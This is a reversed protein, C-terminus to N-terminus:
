YVTAQLGTPPSPSTTTGAKYEYAGIDPQSDRTYGDFDNSVGTGTPGAGIAPSGSQLHYDRGSENVFEPLQNIIDSSWGLVTGTDCFILNDNENVIQAGSELNIGQCGPLGGHSAHAIINGQINAAQAGDHFNIQGTVCTNFRITVNGAHGFVTCNANYSGVPDLGFINNTVTWNYFYRYSGYTSSSTDSQIVGDMANFVVNGDITIDYAYSWDPNTYYTQWGDVHCQKAGGPCEDASYDHSYNHHFRAGHGFVRMYDSDGGTNGPSIYNNAIENNEITCNGACTIWIGFGTRYVYNREVTIDSPFTSGSSDEFDIGLCDACEHVVNDWVDIHNRASSTNYGIYGNTVEFCQIRIYNAALSVTGSIKVTPAPRTSFGFSGGYPDTTTTTPCSGGVVYGQVVIYGGGSSGSHTMTPSESYTGAGVQVVDGPSTAVNLGRQITLCADTANNTCGHSDNGSKGVYYTTASAVVPSLVTGLLFVAAVVLYSRSRMM